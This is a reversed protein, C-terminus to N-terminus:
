PLANDVRAHARRMDRWALCAWQFTLSRVKDGEVLEETFHSLSGFFKGIQESFPRRSETTSGLTPKVSNRVGASGPRSRESRSCTSASDVARAVNPLAARSAISSASRSPSASLRIHEGFDAALSIFQPEDLSVQVRLGAPKWGFREQRPIVM